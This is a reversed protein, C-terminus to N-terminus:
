QQTNNEHIFTQNNGKGVCTKVIVYKLAQSHILFLKALFGPIPFFTLWKSFLTKVQHRTNPVLWVSLNFESCFLLHFFVFTEKKRKKLNPIVLVSVRWLFGAARSPAPQKPLIPCFSLFTYTCFLYFFALKNTSSITCWSFFCSTSTHFVRYLWKPM